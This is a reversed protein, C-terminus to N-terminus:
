GRSWRVRRVLREQRAWMASREREEDPHDYGVVHLVGHIIVRAIEERVPIGRARANERAVEPAIYVDGVVPDSVGARCFSFAIVDTAGERGLHRRSLAAIRRRDVFAISVLAHRVREARLARRAVDRIRARALPVRIHDAAVDVHVSM